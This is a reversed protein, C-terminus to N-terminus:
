PHIFVPISARIDDSDGIFRNLVHKLQSETLLELRTNEELIIEWSESGYKGGRHLGNWRLSFIAKEGSALRVNELRLMSDPSVERESRFVVSKLKLFLDGERNTASSVFVSQGEKLGSVEWGEGSPKENLRFEGSQKRLAPGLDSATLASAFSPTNMGGFLAALLSLSTRPLRM